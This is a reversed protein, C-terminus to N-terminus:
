VRQNSARQTWWVWSSGSRGHSREPHSIVLLDRTPLFIRALPQLLPQLLPLLLPLLLQLEIVYAQRSEDLRRV